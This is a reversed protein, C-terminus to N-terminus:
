QVEIPFTVEIDTEGGANTIDGGSVGFGTKNPTHRLTIVLNGTGVATTTTFSTNLGLPNGDTDQDNYTFSVINSANNFFVQHDLAEALIETTIDDAPSVTENSFTLTGTYTASQNLVTSTTPSLVPADPGDGDLDTSKLVFTNNPNSTDVLTLQVTTIVEEENIVVPADDDSSCSIAVMALATMSLITNKYFKM